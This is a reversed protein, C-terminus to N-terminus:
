HNSFKYGPKEQELRLAERQPGEKLLFWFLPYGLSIERGPPLERIMDELAADNQQQIM